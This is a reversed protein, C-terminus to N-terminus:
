RFLQTKLRPRPRSGQAKLILGTWEDEQNEWAPHLGFPAFAKLVEGREAILIGSVILSGGPVLAGALWKATRILLAGTLNATVADAGTSDASSLWSVLDAEVFQVGDIAPNLRINDRAARIADPDSDIGVATRAGMLRAAIALVGSGTGADVVNAGALDTKQLATLCLRTTAHHGTGFGM